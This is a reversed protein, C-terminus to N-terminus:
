AAVRPRSVRLAALSTVALLIVAAGYINATTTLGIKPAALGALIAPIAFALYSQVYFASLLGARETPAATPLLKRFLGSFAAGFGFGAVSAGALMAVANQVHIAALIAAVGLALVPAGTTFAQDATRNRMALVAIAATGMVAGAVAAGIFPSTLGTAARVLAPMLSLNFGGLAWAAINVPTVQILVPWAPAPVHIQPRLAALAGPKGAATEPMLWLLAAFAASIAFLIAYVLQAPHPAFATLAGAGLAGIALGAFATISNIVPGRRRDTDLVTAGLTTIAAGTAFGQLIRAAILAAASDATIFLAQAAMNLLLAAFIVPRRGIYDSLSGITLLATLLSFVYAAFVITLTVPALGFAEQYHRYLPTPAAASASFTVAAAAAFLTMASRSLTAPAAQDLTATTCSM